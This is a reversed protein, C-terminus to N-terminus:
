FLIPESKCQSSCGDFDNTNKDDCQEQPDQHGDGCFAARTCNENCGGYGGENMDTGLDCQEGFAAQVKGDGCHPAKVCGPACGDYTDLNMGDDCEEGHESQTKGDGCREGFTCVASCGGYGGTNGASGEDCHEGFFGDVNGDGCYPGLTCDPNCQNYSGQNQAAGDDCQEPPTSEAGDGCYPGRATCTSDCHGYDGDNLSTCVGGDCDDQNPHCSEGDNTGGVCVSGSDCLEGRTRVGDGCVAECTTTRKFFKGLELRYSSETTHREAQYVVVEYLNGVQLNLNVTGEV